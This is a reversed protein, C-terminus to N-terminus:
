FANSYAVGISTHLLAYYYTYGQATGMSFVINNGSITNAVQINSNSQLYITASTLTYSSTFQVLIDASLSYIQNVYITIPAITLRSFNELTAYTHSSIYLSYTMYSPSSCTLDLLCIQNAQPSNATFCEDGNQYLNM